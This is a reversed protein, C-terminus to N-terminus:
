DGKVIRYSDSNFHETSVELIESNEFAIMQHLRNAPIFFNDGKDLIVCEAFDEWSKGAPSNNIVREITESDDSYLLKIKGSLIYFTETKLKHMHFSCRKGKVFHLIKGCYKESNAVWIEYGWGKPVFNMPPQNLKKDFIM